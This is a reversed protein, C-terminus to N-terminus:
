AAERAAKRLALRSILAAAALVALASTGPEPVSAPSTPTPLHNQLIALDVLNIRGDRNFDGHHFPGGTSVGLHRSLIALDRRDVLDDGNADGPVSRIDLLEFTFTGLRPTDAFPFGTLREIPVHPTPELDPSNFTTGSDTGADYPWLDVVIRERWAGDDTLPLSHVGVFWDPSPAIMTVLSMLPFQSTAAFTAMTSNPSLAIGSGLIATSSNGTAQVATIEATLPTRGGTEAMVEIGRSALEGPRWFEVSANHTAGILPSFHPNAAPFDHPHDVANWEAVFTVRYDATSAAARTVLLLVAMGTTWAAQWGRGNGNRM